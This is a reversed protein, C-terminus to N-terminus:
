PQDLYDMQGPPPDINTNMEQAPSPGIMELGPNRSRAAQAKIWEITWPKPGSQRHRPRPFRRPFELMEHRVTCAIMLGDVCDDPKGGTESSPKGDARDIHMYRGLEKVTQACRVDLLDDRILRDLRDRAAPKTSKNMGWGIRESWKQNIHDFVFHRFLRQYRTHRRLEELTALGGGLTEPAIVALNYMRGLRDLM